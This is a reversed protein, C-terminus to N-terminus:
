YTTVKIVNNFNRKIFRNIKESFWLDELHFCDGVTKNYVELYSLHVAHNGDCSRMRIKSFLDKIALVTVGPSEVTGLMTYTKRAGSAGYCFVSGNRGQLVGELLESTRLNQFHLTM